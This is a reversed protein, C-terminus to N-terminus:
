DVYLFENSSMLSQCLNTMAQRAAERGAPLTTKEQHYTEVQRAM